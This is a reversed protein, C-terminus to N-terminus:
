KIIELKKNEIKYIIDFYKELNQDHSIFLLIKENKLELINEIFDRESKKDLSSTSEDFIIVEPELYLTRALAIRQRQGGSLTM